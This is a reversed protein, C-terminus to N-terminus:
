YAGKRIILKQVKGKGEELGLPKAKEAIESEKGTYADFQARLTAYDARHNEVEAELRATERVMREAYHANSIYLVGLAAWFLLYPIYRTPVYPATPSSEVEKDLSIKKKPLNGAPRNEIRFRNEM